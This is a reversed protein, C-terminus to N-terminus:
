KEGLAGDITRHITALFHPMGAPEIGSVEGYFIRLLEFYCLTEAQKFCDAFAHMDELRYMAVALLAYMDKHAFGQAPPVFSRWVDAAEAYVGNEHLWGAVSYGDPDGGEARCAYAKKLQLLAEELDRAERLWGALQIHAEYRSLGAAVSSLMQEEAQQPFHLVCLTFSLGSSIRTRDPNELPCRSLAKELHRNAANYFESKEGITAAALGKSNFNEGVYMPITYDEPQTQMYESACAYAEDDRHLAYLSFVKMSMAHQNHPDVALAYDCSKVCDEYAGKRQQLEALQCWSIADYPDADILRNAAREGEEKNGALDEADALLELFHKADRYDAPVKRLWKAAREAYGYDLLIEGYDVCWDNAEDGYMANLKELFKYEAKVLDGYSVAREIYFLQVERNEQDSLSEVLNEADLWKGKSRLDYAKAVLVEENDPHLKLAVRLCQEADLPRNERVYYDHVDLLMSADMYFSKGSRMGEEYERIAKALYRDKM